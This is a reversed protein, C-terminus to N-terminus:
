YKQKGRGRSKFRAPPPLPKRQACMKNCERKRINDPALVHRAGIDCEVPARRQMRSRYYEPTRLINIRVVIFDNETTLLAGFLNPFWRTDFDELEDNGRRYASNPM